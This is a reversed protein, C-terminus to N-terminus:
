VCGLVQMAPSVKGSFKYDFREKGAPEWPDQGIGANKGTHDLKIWEAADKESAYILCNVEEPPKRGSKLINSFRKRLSDSKIIAPNRLCKIATIRRNGDLVLFLNKKIQQVRSDKARDLGHELIHEALNFIEDGKEELMLDIAEGQNDVPDFRYNEPNVVLNDIEIDKRMHILQSRYFRLSISHRIILVVL